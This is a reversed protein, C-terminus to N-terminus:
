SPLGADESAGGQTTNNENKPPEAQIGKAIKERNVRDMANQALEWKDTRVNFEPRVGDKEETYIAPSLESIAEHNENMKQIKSELCEAEYSELQYFGVEHSKNIIRPKGM